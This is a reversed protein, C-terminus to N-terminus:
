WKATGRLVTQIENTPRNEVNWEVEGPRHAGAIQGLQKWSTEFLNFAIFQAVDGVTTWAGRDAVRYKVGVTEPSLNDIIEYEPEEKNFLKQV